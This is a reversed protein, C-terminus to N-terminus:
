QHSLEKNVTTKIFILNFEKALAPRHDIDAQEPTGLGKWAMSEPQLRGITFGLVLKLSVVSRSTKFNFM